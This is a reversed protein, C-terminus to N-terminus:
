KQAMKMKLRLIAQTHLQSIRGESLGLIFGIEKLNMADYYYLRIISKEKKPLDEISRALLEFKEEMEFEDEPIPSNENKIVQVLSLDDEGVMDDLSIKVGVGIDTLMKYYETEPINLKAAVESSSPQKGFEQELSRVAEEIRKVKSMASRSLNGNTKGFVRIQDIISGQIRRSAYTEFKAGQTPDYKEVADILGCIGFQILDERELGNPVNIIMRGLLKNVFADEVYQKVIQNRIDLAKDQQYEEWLRVLSSV